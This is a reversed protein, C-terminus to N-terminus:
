NWSKDLNILESLEHLYYERINWMIPSVLLSMVVCIESNSYSNESFDDSKYRILGFVRDDKSLILIFYNQEILSKQDSTVKSKRIQHVRFKHWFTALHTPQMRYRYRPTAGCHPRCSAILTPM